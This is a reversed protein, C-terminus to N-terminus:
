VFILPYSLSPDYSPTNSISGYYEMELFRTIHLRGDSPTVIRDIASMFDPNTFFMNYSNNWINLLQIRTPIDEERVLSLNTAIMDSFKVLRDVQVDSLSSLDRMEWNDLNRNTRARYEAVYMNILVPNTDVLFRLNIDAFHIITPRNM